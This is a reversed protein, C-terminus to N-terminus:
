SMIAEVVWGLAEVVWWDGGGRGLLGRLEENKGVWWDGMKIWRGLVRVIMRRELEKEEM